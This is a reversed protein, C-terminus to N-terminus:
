AARPVPVDLPEAVQVLRAGLEVCCGLFDLYHELAEAGARAIADALSPDEALLAELREANVETHDQDLEVHARVFSMAQMIDDGLLDRCRSILPPGIVTSMAEIEFEIGIQAWPSAGAIVREHLERYCHVARPPPQCLLADVDLDRGFRQCWLPELVCLDELLMQDHGAEDGARGAISHGLAERGARVCARGAESMWVDVNEVMRVGLASFQLLFGTLEAADLRGSLLRQIGPDRHMRERAAIVYPHTLYHRALHPYRENIDTSM